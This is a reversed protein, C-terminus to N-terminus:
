CKTKRKMRALFHRVLSNYGEVTFTEAKSQIHKKPPLVGVYAEWFDTMCWGIHKNKVKKWLVEQPSSGGNRWVAENDAAANEDTLSRLTNM